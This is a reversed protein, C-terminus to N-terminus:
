QTVDIIIASSYGQQSVAEFAQSFLNLFPLTLLALIVSVSPRPFASGCQGAQALSVQICRSMEQIMVGFQIGTLTLSQVFLQGGPPDLSCFTCLYCRLSVVEQLTGADELLGRLVQCFILQISPNFLLVQGFSKSGVGRNDIGDSM